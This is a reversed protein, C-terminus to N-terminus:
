IVSGRNLLGYAKRRSAAGDLPMKDLIEEGFVKM